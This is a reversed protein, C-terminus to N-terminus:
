IKDGAATRPGVVGTITLGTRLGFNVKFLWIGYLSVLLWKANWTRGFQRAQFMTGARPCTLISCGNWTFKLNCLRCQIQCPSLSKSCRSIGSPPKSCRSSGSIRDATKEPVRPRGRGRLRTARAFRSVPHLAFRPLDGSSLLLRECAASAFQARHFCASGSPLM